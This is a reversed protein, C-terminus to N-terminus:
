RVGFGLGRALRPLVRGTFGKRNAGAKRGSQSRTRGAHTGGPFLVGVSEPAGAGVAAVGVYRGETFTIVAGNKSLKSRGFEGIPGGSAASAPVSRPPSRERRSAGSCGLLLAGPGSSAGPSTRSSRSRSAAVRSPPR